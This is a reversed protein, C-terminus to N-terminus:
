REAEKIPMTQITGAWSRAFLKVKLVHRMQIRVVKLPVVRELLGGGSDRWFNALWRIKLGLHHDM